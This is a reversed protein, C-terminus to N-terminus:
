LETTTEDDYTLRSTNKFLPLRKQDTSAFIDDGDLYEDSSWYQEKDSIDLMGPSDDISALGEKKNRQLAPTTFRRNQLILADSLPPRSAQFSTRAPTKSKSGDVSTKSWRPLPTKRIKNRKPSPGRSPYSSESGQTISEASLSSFAKDTAQFSKHLKQHYPDHKLAKTGPSAVPDPIGVVMMLRRSLEQAKSFEKERRDRDERLKANTKQMELVVSDYERRTEVAREEAEILQNQLDQATKHHQIKLTTSEADTSKAFDEFKAQINKTESRAEELQTKLNAVTSDQRDATERAVANAEDKEETLRLNVQHLLDIESEESKITAEQIETQRQLETVSSQMHQMKQVREADEVKAQGAEAELTEIRTRARDLDLGQQKFLEDRGKLTAMYALDQERSSEAAANAVRQAETKAQDFEQKIGELSISMDGLRRENNGLQKRLQDNEARLSERTGVHIRAEEQLKEVMMQADDLRNQLASAKKQEECLPREVEHCRLELDRCVDSVIRIISDYRSSVDRSMQKFLTDRWNHSMSCAEPTGDAELLSIRTESARRARTFATCQGNLVTFGQQIELLRFFMKQIKSNLPQTSLLGCKLLLMCIKSYLIGKARIMMSPCVGQVSHM